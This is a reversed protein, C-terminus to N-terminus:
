GDNYGSKCIQIIVYCEFPGSSLLGQICHRLDALDVTLDPFAACTGCFTDAADKTAAHASALM